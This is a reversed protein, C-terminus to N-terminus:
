CGKKALAALPTLTALNDEEPSDQGSAKFSTM